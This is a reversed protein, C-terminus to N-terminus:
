GTVIVLYKSSKWFRNPNTIELTKVFGKIDKNLKYSDPPHNTILKAEKSNISIINLKTIDIKTFSEPNLDGELVKDKGMGLFGGEKKMIKKGNLEKYTGMIWYATHLQETKQSIIIDRQQTEVYMSDVTRNLGDIASRLDTSEQRLAIIENDKRTNEETLEVIKRRLSAITLENGSLKRNLSEIIQTNRELLESIVDINFSIRDKVDQSMETGNGSERAIAVQTRTISDLNSEIENMSEIFSSISSDKTASLTLISDREAIAREMEPKYDKCGPLILGGSLVVIAMPMLTYTRLNTTSSM